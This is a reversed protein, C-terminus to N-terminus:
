FEVLWLLLQKMNRFTFLIPMDLAFHADSLKQKKSEQRVFEYKAVPGFLRITEPLIWELAEVPFDLFLNKFNQDHSIQTM